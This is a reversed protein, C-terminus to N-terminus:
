DYKRKIFWRDNITAGLSVKLYREKLSGPLDVGRQGATFALNLLTSQRSFPMSMGLNVSLDTVPQGNLRIGEQTYNVGARYIVRKFYSDVASYDPCYEGGVIVSYGTNDTDGFSFRTNAFSNYSLLHADVGVVWTQDRNALSIGARYNTPIVAPRLENVAITDTQYALGGASRREIARFFRTNLEKGMTVAAGANLVYKGVLVNFALGPELVVDSFNNRENLVSLGTLTPNSNNGIFIETSTERQIVGFLYHAKLGVFIRNKYLNIGTGVFFNNVGGTGNQEFLGEFPSNEIMRTYRTRYNVASYPMLGAQIAWKPSVPFSLSLHMIGAGFDQQSDRESTLASLKSQVGVDFITNVIRGLLAPNLNNTFFPSGYSVGFGGMAQNLVFNHTRLDGIGLQSYPSNGLDQARLTVGSALLMGCIACIIPYISYRM